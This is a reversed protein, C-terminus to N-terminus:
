NRLPMLLEIIRLFVIAQPKSIAALWFPYYIDFIFTESIKNKINERIPHALEFNKVFFSSTFVLVVM